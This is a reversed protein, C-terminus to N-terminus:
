CTLALMSHLDPLFTQRHAHMVCIQAHRDWSCTHAHMRVHTHCNSCQICICQIMTDYGPRSFDPMELYPSTGCVGSFTFFNFIKFVISKQGFFGVPCNFNLSLQVIQLQFPTEFYFYSPTILACFFDQFEPIELYPCTGCM